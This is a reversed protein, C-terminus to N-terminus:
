YWTRDKAKLNNDKIKKSVLDTSSTNGKAKAVQSETVKWVPCKTIILNKGENQNLYVYDDKRYFTQVAYNGAGIIKYKVDGETLTLASNTKKPKDVKAVKTSAKKVTRVKMNQEEADDSIEENSYGLSERLALYEQYSEEDYFDESDFVYEALVMEEYTAEWDEEGELEEPMEIMEYLIDDYLEVKDGDCEAIFGFSVSQGPEINQNYEKNDLYCFGEESLNECIEASWIQEFTLNSSLELKWDEIRRETNNTITIQGNVKTDNWRSYETYEIEYNDEVEFCGRTLFGDKPEDITDEYQVTMGFTISGEYPIDQNWDANRVTYWGEETNHEMVKANWIHEITNSFDFCIEWDDIKSETLNTVTVEANYHHNWQSTIKMSIDIDEKGDDLDIDEEDDADEYEVSDTEVPPSEVGAHEVQTTEEAQAVRSETGAFRSIIMSFLLMVVILKKGQQKM